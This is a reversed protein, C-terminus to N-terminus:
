LWQMIPVAVMSLVAVSATKTMYLVQNTTRLVNMLASRYLSPGKAYWKRLISQGQESGLKSLMLKLLWTLRKQTCVSMKDIKIPIHNQLQWGKKRRM